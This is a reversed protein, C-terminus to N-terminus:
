RKGKLALKIKRRVSAIYAPTGGAWYLRMTSEAVTAPNCQEPAYQRVWDTLAVDASVLAARQQATM